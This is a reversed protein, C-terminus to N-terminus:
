LKDTLEAGCIVLHILFNAILMQPLNSLEDFCVKEYVWGNTAIAVNM